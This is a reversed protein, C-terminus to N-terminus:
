LRPMQGPESPNAPCLIAGGQNGPEGCALRAEAWDLRFRGETGLEPASLVKVAVQRHLLPDHARYVRGMDGWGLEAELQYRANLLMGIAKPM